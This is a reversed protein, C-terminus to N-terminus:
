AIKKNKLPRFKAQPEIDKVEIYCGKQKGVEKIWARRKLQLNARDIDTYSRVMDGDKYLELTM